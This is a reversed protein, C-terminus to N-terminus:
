GDGHPMAFSHHHAPRSHERHFPPQPPLASDDQTLGALYGADIHLLLASTHPQTALATHGDNSKIVTVDSPECHELRSNTYVEMGGSIVVLIELAPHLTDHFSGIGYAYRPAQLDHAEGQHEHCLEGDM